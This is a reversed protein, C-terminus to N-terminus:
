SPSAPSTNPPFAEGHTAATNLAPLERLLRGRTLWGSAAIHTMRGFAVLWATTTM